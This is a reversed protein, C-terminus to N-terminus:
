RGSRSPRPWRRTSCRGPLRRHRVQVFARARLQPLGHGRAPAGQLTGRRADRRSPYWAAVGQRRLLPRYRSRHHRDGEQRARGRAGSRARHPVAPDGPLIRQHGHPSRADVGGERADGARRAACQAVAGRRQRDPLAGRRAPHGLSDPAPGDQQGRHGPHPRRQAWGSFAGRCRGQRDASRRDQGQGRRGM